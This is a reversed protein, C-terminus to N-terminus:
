VVDYRLIVSGSSLPRADIFSLKGREKLDHLISKGGSEMLTPNLTIRFVDVLKENILYNVFTAGGFVVIDKGTEQKLKAIEARADTAVRYNPYDMKKISHSFVIHPKQHAIRGYKQLNLDSPDDIRSHWFDAYEKAMNGGLLYTDVSELDKFMETWVDDGGSLWDMRNDPATVYGNFTMTMSLILKRGTTSKM